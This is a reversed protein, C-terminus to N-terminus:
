CSAYSFSSPTPVGYNISFPTLATNDTYAACTLVAPIIAGNVAVEGLKSYYSSTANSACYQALLSSSSGILLLLVLFPSYLKKTYLQWKWSSNIKKM